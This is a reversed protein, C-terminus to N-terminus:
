KASGLKMLARMGNEVGTEDSAYIIATQVGQGWIGDVWYICARGSGPAHKHFAYPYIHHHQVLAAILPNTNENGVLVADEELKYYPRRYFHVIHRTTPYPVRKGEVTFAEIAINGGADKVRDIVQQEAANGVLVQLPVQPRHKRHNNMMQVLKPKDRIDVWGISEVNLQRATKVALHRRTSKGNIHETVHVLWEGDKVLRGLPIDMELVGNRAMRYLELVLRGSSDYLRIELPIWAPVPGHPGEVSARIGVQGEDWTLSHIHVSQIPTPLEAYLLADGRELWLSQHGNAVPRKNFVEYLAGTASLSLEFSTSQLDRRTRHTMNVVWHYRGGGAPMESVVVMPDSSTVVPQWDIAKAFVDAVGDTIERFIAADSTAWTKHHEEWLAWANRYAFPLMTAGAIAVSSSQDYWIRGGKKIFADLLKQTKDSLYQIGPVILIRCSPTRNHALDTETIRSVTIDAAMAVLWASMLRGVYARGAVREAPERSWAYLMQDVSCLIGVESAPKPLGALVSSIPKIRNAVEVAEPWSMASTFPWSIGNAQQSLAGYILARVDGPHAQIGTFVPMMWLPKNRDGGRMVHTEHIPYWLGMYRDTYAHSSFVDVGSANAPPYIGDTIFAWDCIQSFGKIAPDIEKLRSTFTSFSRGLLTTRWRQYAMWHDLNTDPSFLLPPSKMFESEYLTLQETIALPGWYVHDPVRQGQSWPLRVGRTDVLGYALGPEDAYHIGYFLPSFRHRHADSSLFLLCSDVVAPISWDNADGEPQHQGALTHVPSYRMRNRALADLVAPRPSENHYHRQLIHNAGLESRWRAVDGINQEAVEVSYMNFVFPTEPLESVVEIEAAYDGARVTWRGLGLEYPPIRFRAMGAITKVRVKFQQGAHEFLVRCRRSSHPIILEIAEDTRFCWRGNLSIIGEEDLVPDVPAALCGLSQIFFMIGCLVVLRM